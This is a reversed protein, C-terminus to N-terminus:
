RLPNFFNILREVVNHGAFIDGLGVGGNIRARLTAANVDMVTNAAEARANLDHVTQEFANRDYYGWGRLFAERDADNPLLAFETLKRMRIESDKQTCHALRFKTRVHQPLNGLYTGVAVAQAQTIVRATILGTLDEIGIEEDADGWGGPRAELLDRAEKSKGEAMLDAAKKILQIDAPKTYTGWLMKALWDGMFSASVEEAMHLIKDIMKSGVADAM